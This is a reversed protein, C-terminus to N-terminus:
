TNVIVGREGGPGPAATAIASAALRLVNFTGILNVRIVRTFAELGHPGAKGLVREALAIGACNVAGHLAGFARVAADVAGRVAAEDTVDTAAFRARGGLEAALAEGAPRNLDAVVVNAGGAALLRACAAGLGSGGGSVLFTHDAVQM